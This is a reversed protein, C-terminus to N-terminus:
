RFTYKRSRQCWFFVFLSLIPMVFFLVFVCSCIDVRATKEDKRKQFEQKCHFVREKRELRQEEKLREFSRKQQEKWRREQEQKWIAIDVELAVMQANLSSVTAEANELRESMKGLHTGMDRKMDKVATRVHHALVSTAILDINDPMREDQMTTTAGADNPPSSM